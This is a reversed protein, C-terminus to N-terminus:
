PMDFPCEDNNYIARSEEDSIENGNPLRSVGAGNTDGKKLYDVFPENSSLFTAGLKIYKEERRSKRCEDAYNKCATLLESESYGCKLRASYQAYAKQKEKKRPYHEWFEEFCVNYKNENKIMRKDNKTQPPTTDWPSDSVSDSVSDANDITFSQYDDFNVLTILTKRSDSVKHIMGCQELLRLYKLTKDKDWRWIEALKRVSTIFQGRKVVIPKGDFLIEKDSHNCRMILELWASRRDFPEDSDWIVCERIKRHILVFGKDKM